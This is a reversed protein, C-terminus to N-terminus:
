ALSLPFRMLRTYAAGGPSLKSQYLFFEEAAMTGFESSGFAAARETVSLKGLESLDRGAHKGRSGPHEAARALTLHPSFARAEAEFGLVHLKEDISRALVPLAESAEVGIWFVRPSRANPFFGTNRFALSFPVGEIQQLANQIQPLRTEDVEGLFKLTVHLSEPKVWRADPAYQRLRTMCEAIRERIESPIDLAVFLRM